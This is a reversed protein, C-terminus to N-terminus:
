EVPDLELQRISLASSRATGMSILRTFEQDGENWNWEYEKNRYVLTPYHKAAYEMANEASTFVAISTTDLSDYYVDECVELLWVVM